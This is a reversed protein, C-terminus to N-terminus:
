VFLPQLAINVLLLSLEFEIFDDGVFSSKLYKYFATNAFVVFIGPRKMKFSVLTVPKDIKHM